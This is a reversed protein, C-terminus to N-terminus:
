EEEIIVIVVGEGLLVRLTKLYVTLGNMFWFQSM